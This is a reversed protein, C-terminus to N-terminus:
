SEEKMMKLFVSVVKPDFQKGSFNVIEAIAKEKTIAAHYVRDNTMADYADIVSIIRSTIPIEKGKLGQPYGNGDWHEHHCLIANAISSLEPCAAAIRYGIECHKQMIEREENTLIGKKSLISDPIGIKGIDHLSALLTLEDLEEHSLALLRGLKLAMDKMRDAHAETEWTREELTKKLSNIFSSRLSTGESLKNKYMRDEARKCVTIMDESKKTRTAAGLAISYQILKEDKSKCKEKIRNCIKAADKERTKPLILAFEDGGIRCIIDGKRCSNRLIKAITKLVDNGKDSGFTDNILKLSNVDGIIISLPLQFENNLRKLEEDFYKRNFLGTLEDHYDKYELQEIIQTKDINEDMMMCILKESMVHILSCQVKVYKKEGNKLTHALFLLRQKEEIIKEIERSIDIGTIIDVIKMKKLQKRSFGYFKRAALNADIISLNETDIILIAFNNIEFVNRYIHLRERLIKRFRIYMTIDICIGVYGPNAPNSSEFVYNVPVGAELIWRYKGEKSRVRYRTRFPKGLEIAEYYIKLYKNLDDPHILSAWDENPNNIDNGTFNFFGSSVFNRAGDTGTKWILM